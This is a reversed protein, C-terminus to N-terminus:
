EEIESEESESESEADESTKDLENISSFKIEDTSDVEDSTETDSDVLEEIEESIKDMEESVADIENAIANAYEDAPIVCGEGDERLPCDLEIDSILSEEDEKKFKEKVKAKADEFSEKAVGALSKGLEKSDDFARKAKEKIEEDEALKSASKAVVVAATGIAVLGAILLKTRFM